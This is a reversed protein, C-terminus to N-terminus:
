APNDKYDLWGQWPHSNPVIKFDWMTSSLTPEKIAYHLFASYLWQGYSIYLLSNSNFCWLRQSRLLHEIIEVESLCAGAENWKFYIPFRLSSMSKKM